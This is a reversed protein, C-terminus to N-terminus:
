VFIPFLFEIGTTPCNAQYKVDDIAMDSQYSRGIVGEFVVQFHLMTNELRLYSILFFKLFKLKQLFLSDKFLVCKILM